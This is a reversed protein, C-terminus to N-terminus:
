SSHQGTSAGPEDQFRQDMWNLADLLGPVKQIEDVVVLRGKPETELEERLLAPRQAYRLYEDTKLLDIWVAGPYLSLLLTSKGAGPPGLLILRM